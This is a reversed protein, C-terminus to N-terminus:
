NLESLGRIFSQYLESLARIFSQYVESLGRIFSQYLESLARIFSQYLEAVLLHIGGMQRRAPASAEGDYPPTIWCLM